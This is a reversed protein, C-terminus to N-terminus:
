AFISFLRATADLDEVAHRTLSPQFCSYFFPFSYGIVHRPSPKRLTTGSRMPIQHLSWWVLFVGLGLFLLYKLLGLLRKKM